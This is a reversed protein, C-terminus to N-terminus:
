PRSTQVYQIGVIAEGDDNIVVTKGNSRIVEFPGAFDLKDIIGAQVAAQNYYVKTGKIMETGKSMENVKKFVFPEHAVILSNGCSVCVEPDYGPKNMDSSMSKIHNHDCKPCDIHLLHIKKKRPLEVVNM